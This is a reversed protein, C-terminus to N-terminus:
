RIFSLNLLKSKKSAVLHMSPLMIADAVVDAAESIPIRTM